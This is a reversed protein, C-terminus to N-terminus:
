HKSKKLYVILGAGAIVVSAASVTAVLATPFPEPVEVTFSVTESVGVNGFSDEACVTVNHM